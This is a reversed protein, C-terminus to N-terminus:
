RKNEEIGNRNAISLLDKAMLQTAKALRLFESRYGDKDKGLSGEALQIVQEFNSQQKFDSQRLLMGFEAVAASFNFNSSMTINKKVINDIVTEQILKSTNGDPEKYRLKITLMEDSANEAVNKKTRQYKLADVSGIFESKIGVPIIEYLATVTHGSGIEGADKKDDNFDESNLMRNEYGILRYAQVKAPNFELQFKVDKAVTFLTGGFENVLVKKAESINDIYAYNGNGKDALTEMKSDKYNGMGYGLVTLFVGTKRKEEILKQMDLDSSQGVNFDGDTALIIRNNGGKIFNESAVKYALALGAGGATSGGANLRNLAEKIATKNDGATSPLALGSSGAYVVIAVKDKERLQDTLLKLSSVLLPLKNADSMSGSVDILFVLNSAPLKETSVTRAQLGIHLLRHSPNWPAPAIETVINIPDKGTPQAYDYDFYNVMEEIRVADKPPLGGNNIFRRVNSYAAADVDISFTSLPDKDTKRFGIESITSYSETNNIIQVSSNGRIKISSNSKASLGAVKGSLASQVSFPKANKLEQSSITTSQSGQERRKLNLGGATVVIENLTQRNATMSINYNSNKSLKIIQTEYGLYSVSIATDTIPIKLSFKGAMDVITAKNSPLSKVDAGVMQLGDARDTVLGTIIRQNAAKFGVFLFCALIITLIKKM